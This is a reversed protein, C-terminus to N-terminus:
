RSARRPGASESLLPQRQETRVAELTLDRLRVPDHEGAKAFAIIRKAVTLRTRPDNQDLGLVKVTEEFAEILLAGDIALYRNESDDIALRIPM